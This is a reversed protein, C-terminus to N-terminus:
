QMPARVPVYVDTEITMSHYEKRNNFEDGDDDDGTQTTNHDDVGDCKCGRQEGDSCHHQAESQVQASASDM